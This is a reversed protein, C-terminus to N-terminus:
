FISFILIKCMDSVYILDWFIKLMIKEQSNCGQFAGLQQLKAIIEYRRQQWYRHTGVVNDFVSFIDEMTIMQGEVFKGRRYSVNIQRELHQREIYYLAAFLFTKNNSWRNDKNLIRQKFYEQPTLKEEREDDFLGFRGSPFLHPFANIDWNKDRMLSTPVKGEGPALPLSSSSDDRHKVDQVKDSTNIVVSSEPYNETMMTAGSLEFQHENTFHTDDNEESSTSADTDSDEGIDQADERVWDRIEINQYGPHGMEKLDMLAKKLAEPRVLAELHKNKYEMKRKLRVPVLGSENPKRPFAQVSNLNKLIDDDLIPVNVTKDIVAHFQSKPLEHIKLFLINKSILVSELDTLPLAEDKGLHNMASQKPMKKKQFLWKKCTSCIYTRNELYLDDPIPYQISKEFLGPSENDLRTKLAKVSVDQVGSKSM